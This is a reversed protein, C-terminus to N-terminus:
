VIDHSQTKDQIWQRIVESSIEGGKEPMTAIFDRKFEQHMRYSLDRDRTFVYLINLAFDAPGSGHYGWEFGTPSHDIIHQYINTRPGSHDRWAMVMTPLSVMSQKRKQIEGMHAGGRCVPGIGLEISIPNTLVRGCIKCSTKPENQPSREGQDEHVVVPQDSLDAGKGPEPPGYKIHLEDMVKSYKENLQWAYSRRGYDGAEKKHHTKTLIGAKTLNTISRRVSTIPPKPFSFVLSQIEWPTFIEGPRAEFFDAVKQDQTRARAQYEALTPGSEKTTNHYHKM